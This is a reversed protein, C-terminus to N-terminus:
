RVLKSREFLVFAASLSSQVFCQYSYGGLTRGMQERKVCSESSFMLTGQAPTGPAVASPLLSRTLARFFFSAALDFFSLIVRFSVLDDREFTNKHAVGRAQEKKFM